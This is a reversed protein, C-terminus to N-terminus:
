RSYSPTIEGIIDLGWQEFPRSIIVLQLPIAERKEKGASIQYTKCNRAYTHADKFLTPWYYGARFIKHTTTKWFHHGGCLGSHFDIMVKQAQQPDLCMLLIGQPDKWYLVQNIICYKLTKLKLARAKNKEMGDPPRLEQLFFLLDKYWPCAALPMTGKFGNHSSEAQEHILSIELAEYNSESLLKAM